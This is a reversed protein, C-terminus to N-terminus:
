NPGTFSNCVCTYETENDPTHKTGLVYLIITILIYLIKMFCLIMFSEKLMICVRKPLRCYAVHNLALRPGDLKFATLRLALSLELSSLNIQRILLSHFSNVRWGSTMRIQTIWNCSTSVTINFHSTMFLLFNWIDTNM